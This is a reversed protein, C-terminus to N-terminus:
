KKKTLLSIENTLHDLYKQVQTKHQLFLTHLDSIALIILSTDNDLKQTLNKIEFKSNESIEKTIFNKLTQFNKTLDENIKKDSEVMRKKLVHLNVADNDNLPDALNCLRKRNIDYQGDQTLNYGIGPPGRTYSSAALKTNARGFIDVGM